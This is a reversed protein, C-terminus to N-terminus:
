TVVRVQLPEGSTLTRQPFPFGIGAADFAAKVERVVDSTVEIYGETRLWVSLQVTIQSDDFSKFYVRPEPEELCQTNRDVVEMLVREVDDLTAAYHVGFRLDFRRIEYHTRNVVSSKLMTENPIRVMVNELTRLRASLLDISIVEGVVNDVSLVDGVVFPREGMLFLGSLMNSAITQAAFGIAVTLVGATGLLVGMEVGLQNLAGAAAVTIIAYGIFRATVTRHQPQLFNAGSFLRRVIGAAAFGLLLLGAARIWPGLDVGNLVGLLDDIM